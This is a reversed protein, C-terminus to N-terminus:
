ILLILIHNIKKLLYIKNLYDFRLLTLNFEYIKKSKTNYYVIIIYSGTAFNNIILYTKDTIEEFM